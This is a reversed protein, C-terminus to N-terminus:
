RDDRRSRSHRRGPAVRQSCSRGGLGLSEISSQCIADEINLVISSCQARGDHDSDAGGLVRFEYSTRSRRDCDAPM